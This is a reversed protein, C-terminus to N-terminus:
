LCLHSRDQLLSLATRRRPPWQPEERVLQRHRLGAVAGEVPLQDGDVAPNTVEAVHKLPPPESHECIMFRQREGKVLLRLRPGGALLAMKRVNRFESAVDPM